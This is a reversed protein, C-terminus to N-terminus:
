ASRAAAANAMRTARVVEKYCELTSGCCIGTGPIRYGHVRLAFTHFQSPTTTLTTKLCQLRQEEENTRHLKQVLTLYEASEECGPRLDEANLNVITFVQPNILCSLIREAISRGICNIGIHVPFKGKAELTLTELAQSWTMNRDFPLKGDTHQAEFSAIFGAGEKASFGLDLMARIVGIAEELYRFAEGMVGTLGNEMFVKLQPAHLNSYPPTNARVKCDHTGDTGLVPSISGLAPHSKDFKKFFIGLAKRNLEQYYQVQAESPDLGQVGREKLNWTPTVPVLVGGALNNDQQMCAPLQDEPDNELLEEIDTGIKALRSGYPQSLVFNNDPLFRRTQM